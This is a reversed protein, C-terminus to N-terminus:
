VKDFRKTTFNFYYSGHAPIFIEKYDRAPEGTFPDTSRFSQVRYLERAHWEENEQWEQYIGLDVRLPFIWGEPIEFTATGGINGHDIVGWSLRKTIDWDMVSIQWKNAETPPNKLNVTVERPPAPVEPPVEEPPPAEEYPPTPVVAKFYATVSKPRNMTVNVMTSTGAADGAWHDFEAEAGPRATLTVVSGALYNRSSPTVTGNGVIYVYLSYYGAPPEPVEPPIPPAIEEPPLLPKYWPWYVKMSRPLPPGMNPPMPSFEELKIM